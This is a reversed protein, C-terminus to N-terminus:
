SVQAKSRTSRKKVQLDVPSNTNTKHNKKHQDLDKKKAFAKGCMNCKILSFNKTVKVEIGAVGGDCKKSSSSSPCDLRSSVRKLKDQQPGKKSVKELITEIPKKIARSELSATIKILARQSKKHVVTIHRIVDRKRRTDYSCLPCRYFKVFICNGDTHLEIHKALNQKSTFQRKCLKCYLQKFDFGASLKPKKRKKKGSTPSTGVKPSNGDPKVKSKPTATSKKEHTHNTGKTESQPSCTGSNSSSCAGNPGETKIKIDSNSAHNHGKNAKVPTGCLSTKHVIQVHKELLLYSTYRRKCFPCNCSTLNIESKASPKQTRPLTKLKKKPTVIEPSANKGSKVGTEPTISDRRMGKHVEDIHRRTNAKTAFSKNCIHCSTGSTAHIVSTHGKASSLLKNRHVEIFKKIDELKKKHVKKIHRRISRRCNFDKKCVRCAFPNSNSAIKLSRAVPNSTPTHSANPFRDATENKVNEPSKAVSVPTLSSQPAPVSEEKQLDVKEPISNIDVNVESVPKVIQFVANQNTQISELQIVFEPKNARPYIVEMLDKIAQNPRYNENSPDEDANYTSVCYFQKHTILNPLGRFLSRCSKCEFITNVEKLLMLKLQKTGSKFCEIIQLVGSKSTSVPQQLLPPDGPEVTTESDCSGPHPQDTQCYKDRLSIKQTPSSNEETDMEHKSKNRLYHTKRPTFYNKEM